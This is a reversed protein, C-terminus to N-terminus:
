KSLFSYNVSFFAGLQMVDKTVEGPLQTYNTTVNYVNSLRRVNGGVLGLSIMLRNKEGNIYSVGLLVRPKPKAELSMGAGFSVGFYNPRDNNSNRLKWATYALANIGAQSKGNGDNVVNYLTDTGGGSAPQTFTRTNYTDNYLSSLFMGGSVGWIRRQISPIILTTSLSQLKLSDNWPNFDISLEKVDNSVYIPLSVFCTSYNSLMELRGILEATENYGVKKEYGTLTTDAAKYFSRIISDNVSIKQQKVIFARYEAVAIDYVKSELKIEEQQKRIEARFDKMAKEIAAIVEASAINKFVDCDPSLKRTNAISRVYSYVKEEISGSLNKIVTQRNEILISQKKIIDNLCAVTDTIFVPQKDKGLVPRGNRDLLPKKPCDDVHYVDKLIKGTGGGELGFIQSKFVDQFTPKQAEPIAGNGAKEVLNAVITGLNSPDLFFSFFGGDIPVPASSDKSNIVVKYLLPNYNAAKIRVYDGKKIKYWDNPIGIDKSRFDIVIDKTKLRRDEHICSPPVECCCEKKNQAANQKTSDKQSFSVTSLALFLLLLLYRMYKFNEYLFADYKKGLVPFIRTDSRPILSRM